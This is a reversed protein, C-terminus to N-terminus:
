RSRLSRYWDQWASLRISDRDCAAHYEDTRRDIETPGGPEGPAAVPQGPTPTAPRLSVSCRRNQYERLRRSLDGASASAAALKVHLDNEAREAALKDAAETQKAREAAATFAEQRAIADATCKGLDAKSTALAKETAELALYGQHWSHVRWAFLLVALAAACYGILKWPAAKIVALWPGPILGLLFAIM